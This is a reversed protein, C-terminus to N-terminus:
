SERAKRYVWMELPHLRGYWRAARLEAYTLRSHEYDALISWESAGDKFMQRLTGCAWRTGRIRSAGGCTDPTRTIHVGCLLWVAVAHTTHVACLPFFIALVQLMSLDTM